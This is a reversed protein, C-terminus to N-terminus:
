NLRLRAPLHQMGICLLCVILLVSFEVGNRGAGVVFWGAKAHVMAIGVTYIGIYMICLPFVFKGLALLPTGLIEVATIMAAIALGFPLGQTGLWGGFPEVGGNLLRHWGHIAILLCIAVRLTLWAIRSRSTDTM